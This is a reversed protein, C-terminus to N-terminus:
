DDSKSPEIPTADILPPKAPIVVRMPELDGPSSLDIVWGAKVDINVSMQTAAPPSIGAIALVHKSADFAVHESDADLLELMRASARMTGATLNKRAEHAAFVSIHPKKLERVFHWYSLGAKESAAKLTRCEGSVIAAIGQKIRASIRRPKIPEPLKTDSM